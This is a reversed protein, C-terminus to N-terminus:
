CAPLNRVLTPIEMLRDKMELEWNKLEELQIMRLVLELAITNTLEFAFRHIFEIWTEMNLDVDEIPEGDPGPNSWSTNTYIVPENGELTFHYIYDRDELLTCTQIPDLQLSNWKGKHIFSILLGKPTLYYHNYLRSM